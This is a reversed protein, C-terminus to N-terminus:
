RRRRFGQVASLPCTMEVPTAGSYREIFSIAQGWPGSGLDSRLEAPGLVVGRFVEYWVGAVLVADVVDCDVAILNPDDSCTEAPSSGVHAVIETYLAEVLDLHPKYHPAPTDIQRQLWPLHLERLRASAAARSEHSARPDRSIRLDDGAAGLVTRPALKDIRAWHLAIHASQEITPTTMTQDTTPKTAASM